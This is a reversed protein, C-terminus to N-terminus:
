TSGGKTDSFLMSELIIFFSQKQLQFISDRKKREYRSCKRKKEKKKKKKKQLTETIDQGIVKPALRVWKEGTLLQGGGTM